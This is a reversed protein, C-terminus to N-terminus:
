CQMSGSVEGFLVKHRKNGTLKQPYVGYNDRYRYVCSNKVREKQSWKQVLGLNLRRLSVRRVGRVM